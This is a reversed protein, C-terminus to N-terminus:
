YLENFGGAFKDSNDWYLNWCTDMGSVCASLDWGNIRLLDCGSCGFLCIVFSFICLIKCM